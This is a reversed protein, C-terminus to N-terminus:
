KSGRHKLTMKAIANINDTTLVDSYDVNDKDIHGDYDCVYEVVITVKTTKPKRLFNFM